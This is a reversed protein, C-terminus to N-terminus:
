REAAAVRSPDPNRRVLLHSGVSRLVLEAPSVQEVEVDVAAALGHEFRIDPNRRPALTIEARIQGDVPEGAVSAVRAAVSGYQMWPYAELRVRAPQGARIRGLAHASGFFAVVKVDGDPVITAIRQGAAVMSGVKLPSVEAITGDVPVRLTRQDISYAFRAATARADTRTAELEAVRRRLSAIAALRDQHRADIERRLRQAAHEAARVASDREATVNKARLADLESVLGRERLAGVRASEDAAFEAAAAAQRAKADAEAIAALGSRGDEHLAREHAALEDALASLQASAPAVRADAQDRALQEPTADLSMLVDGARVIQGVAFRVAVVRGAVPADVPHKERDAEVRATTTAAYVGVRSGIFWTTWLALLVLLVGLVVVTRRSSDAALMRRTHAFEMSLTETFKLKSSRAVNNL